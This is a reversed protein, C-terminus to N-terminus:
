PRRGHGQLLNVLEQWARTMNPSWSRRREDRPAATFLHVYALRESVRQRDRLSRGVRRANAVNCLTPWLLKFRGSIEERVGTDVFDPVLSNLFIERRAASIVLQDVHCWGDRM